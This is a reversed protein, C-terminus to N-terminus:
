IRFARTKLIVEEWEREPDSDYVIGAGAFYSVVEDFIHATRILVSLTFDNGKLIGACGCYFGRPYLELQNIIELARKKPAGVVSAPPFTKLLIEYSELNSVSSVCSVMQYLTRFRKLKFIEEVKVSGSKSVRALDNRVVDVIMLNEARDKESKLLKKADKATGKIPCSMLKFGERKLFLEMSGSIIEFEEFGLYFGFPVPQKKFFELFLSKGDGVLEFDFRTTLNIQYIDGEKILEKARLISNVFHNKQEAKSIESLKIQKIGQFYSEFGEIEILLIKEFGYTKTKVGLSEGSQSFPVLLFGLEVKNIERFSDLSKFGKIKARQINKTGFWDGSLLLEM